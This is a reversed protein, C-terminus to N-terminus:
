SCTVDPTVRLLTVGRSIKESSEYKVMGMMPNFMEQITMMCSLKELLQLDILRVDM